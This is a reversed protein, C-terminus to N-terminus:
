SKQDIELLQVHFILTANPPIPDRGTKGYALDGPIYLTRAECPKMDGLAEVWGSIVRNAPFEAPQGRDYSSDFKDGNPFFGHYNVKIVQGGEPTPADDNGTKVVSYQLGSAATIVGKRAGNALHWAEPDQDANPLDEVTAAYASIDALINEEGCIALPNGFVESKLADVDQRLEKVDADNSAPQCAALAFGTLLTTLFISKKM